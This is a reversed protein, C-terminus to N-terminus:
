RQADLMELFSFKGLQYGRNTIEFANQAGPLIEDHLVKIENQAALLSEYNRVFETRLQLEVSMQEDMAKNLRQRAELENGQNRNFIPIPISMDLVATTKDIGLYRQVGAGLTVDPIKNAKQLEVIAEHQAVNKISQLIAPNEELRGVLQDFGPIEVFAELEGLAQSFQPKAEGWLLALKARVASLNRRAQELEITAASLAVKSRTAEIPPAKGAEVRKVVTNMARQMLRLTDDMVKVQEQNELVDVFANATRALVELRKAAYAQGAIEQGLTAVNVRASRKGGLEILQSIRFTTFREIGPDSSDFSEAGISFEPNKLLGAQLKTGEYAVVEKSFAALEPNNQLVRQLAQGLTLDSNGEKTVNVATHVDNACALNHGPISVMEIFFLLFVLAIQKTHLKQLM